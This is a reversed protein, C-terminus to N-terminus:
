QTTWNRVLYRIVEARSVKGCYSEVFKKVRKFDRMESANLQTTVRLRKGKM